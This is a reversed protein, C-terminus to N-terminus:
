GSWEKCIIPLFQPFVGAKVFRGVESIGMLDPTQTPDAPFYGPKHIEEGEWTTVWEFLCTEIYEGPDLDGLTSKRVQTPWVIYALCPEGPVCVPEVIQGDVIEQYTDWRQLRCTFRPRWATVPLCPPPVFIDEGEADLPIELITVHEEVIAQATIM